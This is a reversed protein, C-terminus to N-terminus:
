GGSGTPGAAVGLGASTTVITTGGRTIDIQETFSDVHRLPGAPLFNWTVQSALYRNWTSQWGGAPYNDVNHVWNTFWTSPGNPGNLQVGQGLPSSGFTEPTGDITRLVVLNDLTPLNRSRTFQWNVHRYGSLVATHVLGNPKTVTWQIPTAPPVVTETDATLVWNASSSWTYDTAIYFSLDGGTITATAGSVPDTYTVPSNFIINVQGLGQVNSATPWSSVVSGSTSVSVSGSLNPYLPAGVSDVLSAFAVTTPVSFGDTFRLRDQHLGNTVPGTSGTSSNFLAQTVADVTQSTGQDAASEEQQQAHTSDDPTSSSNSSGCGALAALAICTALLSTCRIM